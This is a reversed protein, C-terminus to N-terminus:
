QEGTCGSEVVGDDMLVDSVSDLVIGNPLETVLGVVFIHSVLLQGM